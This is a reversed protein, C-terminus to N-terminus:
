KVEKNIWNEYNENADVDIKMICPIEYPHMKIVASKVRDWNEKKTKVISVIEDSNEMKGKWWYTSEIPFFNACAILRNKMLSAVIKKATRLDPHTIYIIIFGM